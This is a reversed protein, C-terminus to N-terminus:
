AVSSNGVRAGLKGGVNGLVHGNSMLRRGEISQSMFLTDTWADRDLTCAMWDDGLAWSLLEWKLEEEDEEQDHALYLCLWFNHTNYEALSLGSRKFYVFVMALLYNDMHNFCKDKELLQKIPDTILLSFFMDLEEKYITMFTAQHVPQEQVSPLQLHRVQRATM